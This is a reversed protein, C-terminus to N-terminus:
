EAHLIMYSIDPMDYCDLKYNIVFHNVVSKCEIAHM